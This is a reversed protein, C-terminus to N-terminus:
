STKASCAENQKKTEHSVASDFFTLAVLEESLYWLHRLFTNLAVSAIKDDKQKYLQLSQMFHLDSHHPRCVLTHISPVVTQYIDCNFLLLCSETRIGTLKFQSKFMWIKICYILKAMGPAKFSIGSKLTSSLFILTLELLEKYGDHPQQEDFQAQAFQIIEEADSIKEAINPDDTATQYNNKDIEMWKTKFRKFLQM